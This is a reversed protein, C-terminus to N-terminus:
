IGTDFDILVTTGDREGGGSGGAKQLQALIYLGVIM